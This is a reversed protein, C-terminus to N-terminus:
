CHLFASLLGKWLKLSALSPCVPKRTWCKSFFLRDPFSAQKSLITWSQLPSKLNALVHLELRAYICTGGSFCVVFSLNCRKFILSFCFACLWPAKTHCVSTLDALSVKLRSFQVITGDDNTSSLNRVSRLELLEAVSWAHFSQFIRHMGFKM